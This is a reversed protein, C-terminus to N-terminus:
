GLILMHKMTSNSGYWVSLLVESRGDNDFNGLIILNLLFFQVPVFHVGNEIGCLRLKCALM